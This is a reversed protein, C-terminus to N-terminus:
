FFSCFTYFLDIFKAVTMWGIQSLKSAPGPRATVDEGLEVVMGDNDVLCVPGRDAVKRCLMPVKAAFKRKSTHRPDFRIEEPHHIATSPSALLSLLDDKSYSEPSGAEIAKQSLRYM